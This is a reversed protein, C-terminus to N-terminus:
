SPVRPEQDEGESAGKSGIAVVEGTELYKGLDVTQLLQQTNDMAKQHLVAQEMITAQDGLQEVVEAVAAKRQEIEQTAGQMRALGGKLQALIIAEQQAKMVARAEKMVEVEERLQAAEAKLRQMEPQGFTTIEEVLARISRILGPKSM